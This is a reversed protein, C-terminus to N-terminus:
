KPWGLIIVSVLCVGCFLGWGIALGIRPPPTFYGHPLGSRRPTTFYHPAIKSTDGFAGVVRHASHDARHESRTSM